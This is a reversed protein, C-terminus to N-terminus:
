PAISMQLWSFSNNGGHKFLTAAFSFICEIAAKLFRDRTIINGFMKLHEMVFSTYLLKGNKYPKM